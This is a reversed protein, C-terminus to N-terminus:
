FISICGLLEGVSSQSIVRVMRYILTTMIKHSLHSVLVNIDTIVVRVVANVCLM